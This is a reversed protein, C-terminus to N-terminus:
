SDRIKAMELTYAIREGANEQMYNAIEERVIKRILNEDLQETAEM